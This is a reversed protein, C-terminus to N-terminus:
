KVREKYKINLRYPIKNVLKADQKLPIKIVGLEKIIGKMDRFDKAYVDQYEKLLASMNALQAIDWYDGINM